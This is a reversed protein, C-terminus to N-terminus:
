APAGEGEGEGANDDTEGALEAFKARAAEEGRVKVPEVLFGGDIVWWGGGTETLTLGNRETDVVDTGLSGGPAGNGDHDLQPLLGPGEGEGEGEGEGIGPGEFTATGGEEAGSGDSAPVTYGGDAKALSDKVTVEAEWGDPKEISGNAVFGAVRARDIELTEGEKKVQMNTGDHFVTQKLFKVEIQDTDAM